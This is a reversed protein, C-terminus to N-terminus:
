QNSYKFCCDPILLMLVICINALIKCSCCCLPSCCHNLTVFLYKTIGKTKGQGRLINKPSRQSVEEQFFIM